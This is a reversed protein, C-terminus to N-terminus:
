GDSYISRCTWGERTLHGDHWSYAPAETTTGAPCSERALITPNEACGSASALVMMSFAIM